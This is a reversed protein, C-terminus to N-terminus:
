DVFLVYSKLDQLSCSSINNPTLQLLYVYFIGLRRVCTTAIILSENKNVCYELVLM